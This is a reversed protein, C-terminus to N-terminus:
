HKLQNELNKNVTWYALVKMATLPSLGKLNHYIQAGSNNVRWQIKYTLQSTTSPSDLYNMHFTFGFDNVSSLQYQYMGTFGENAAGINVPTSAEGNGNSGVSVSATVTTLEPEPLLYLILPLACGVKVNLSPLM